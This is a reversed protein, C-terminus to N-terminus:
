ICKCAHCYVTNYTETCYKKKLNEIGVELKIYM